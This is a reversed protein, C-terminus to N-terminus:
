SAEGVEVFENRSFSGKGSPTGKKQPICATISPIKLSFTKSGSRGFLGIAVGTGSARHSLTIIM